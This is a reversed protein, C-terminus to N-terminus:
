DEIENSPIVREMGDNDKEYRDCIRDIDKLAAMVEAIAKANAKARENETMKNVEKIIRM